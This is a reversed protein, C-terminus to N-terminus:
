EIDIYTEPYYSNLIQYGRELQEAMSCSHIPGRKQGAIRWFQMLIDEPLLEEKDGDMQESWMVLRKGQASVMSHIRKVFYYYLESRDKLGEEEMRRRCDPCIDWYCIANLQPADAFEIEDGGMHFYNGPFLQCIETIVKQFLGFVAEKGACVVWPSPYENADVSCRLEPLAKLLSNSHAPMDYEPIVELGLVAALELMQKVQEKTYAGPLRMAHPLSDLCIGLGQGDCLHIHLVNMRAKAMLVMESCFQEFKKVGRAIDLMVGRHYLVPADELKVSPMVFKDGDLWVLQSFTALANRLGTYDAYSILVIGQEADIRYAETKLTEDRVARIIGNEEVSVSCQPLFLSLCKAAKEAHEDSSLSLSLPLLFSDGKEKMQKARPIIMSM